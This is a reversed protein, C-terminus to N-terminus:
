INEEVKLVEWDSMYTERENNSYEWPNNYAQEETCADLCVEKEVVCRLTVIWERKKAM